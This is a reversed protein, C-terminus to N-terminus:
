CYLYLLSLVEENSKLNEYRHSFLVKKQSTVGHLGKSIWQCKPPVFQRWKYPRLTLWAWLWYSIHQLCLICRTSLKTAVTWIHTQLPAWLCGATNNKGRNSDGIIFRNSAWFKGIKLFNPSNRIEPSLYSKHWVARISIIHITLM